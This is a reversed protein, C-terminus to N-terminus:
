GGPYPGKGPLHHFIGRVQTRGPGPSRTCTLSSTAKLFRGGGRSSGDEIQGVLIHKPVVMSIDPTVAPFKAIGTYKRDFTTFSWSPPCTSSLLIHGTGLRITTLWMRIYEGLFGVVTGDYVIDAKRGPHLYPHEGRQIMCHPKKHM